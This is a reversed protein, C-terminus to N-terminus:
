PVAALRRGSDRGGHPILCITGTPNTCSPCSRTMRSGSACTCAPTRRNKSVKLRLTGAQSNDLLEMRSLEEERKPQAATRVLAIENPALEQVTTGPLDDVIRAIRARKNEAAGLLAMQGITLHARAQHLDLLPDQYAVHMRGIDTPLLILGIPLVHLAIRKGPARITTASRRTFAGRQQLTKRDATGTALAHCHAIVVM